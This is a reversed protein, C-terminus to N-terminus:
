RRNPYTSKRDVASANSWDATRSSVSEDENFSERRLQNRPSTKPSIITAKLWRLNEAFESKTESVSSAARKIAALAIAGLVGVVVFVGGSVILLSIGSSLETTESLVFGGGIMAITLASGALTAAATGCIAATTLKRKAEQSDVSLLEMQLEMLDLVDQVVRQFSSRSQEGEHAM